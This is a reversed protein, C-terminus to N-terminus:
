TTAEEALRAGGVAAPVEAPRPVLVVSCAADAVLTEGVGGTVLRAFLGWRRSGVVVVDVSESLARLQAGPDGVIASVEVPVGLRSATEEAGAQASQREGEWMQTWDELAIGERASLVPLMDEVVRRVALTAHAGRALETALGLAALAEPGEDYGIGVRQLEVRRKHLGRSAVALAFPADYLLQRGRRSIRAHGEPVTAASGLVVLDAHWREAFHRLARPVSLDAVTDIQAHPAFSDRDRRLAAELQNRLAARSFSPPVPFLAPPYVGVLSLGAGTASAIAAGLAVADRGEATGDCGVVLRKFM